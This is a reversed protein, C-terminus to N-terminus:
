NLLDAAHKKQQDEELRALIDRISNLEEPDSTGFDLRDMLEPDINRYIDTYYVRLFHKLNEINQSEEPITSSKLFQLIRLADVKEHCARIFNKPNVHNRRLPEWVSEERFIEKLFSDMPCPIDASFLDPFRSITLAVQDFLAPSYLPYSDWDGNIGKILAPGTGFFVRSSLRGAPFVKEPNWFLMPAYKRLKQLFYFDEGSKMPTMGGIKQYANMRVAMASGLATFTYPTGIRWLNLSYYRMYIEYRLMARDLEELGNLPHYYPVALSAVRPYNEFSEIISGFYGSGFRTDADLSLLIGNGGSYKLCADMATRRAQGVGFHKSGWGKGPSSCDLILTEHDNISRLIELTERNAICTHIHDPDQWWADPQNVCYCVVFDRFVQNRIDHLLAPLADPEDLLPIAVFLAKAPKLM